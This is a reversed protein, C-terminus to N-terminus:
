TPPPGSGHSGGHNRPADAGRRVVSLGVLLWGAVMLSGGLPAVAGLWRPGGLALAYLSGSFLPVGAVFAMAAGRPSRSGPTFSLALLAVTHVLQYLTATKWVDLMEPPLTGRLAHAGLAGAGVGTAGLFGAWARVLERKM